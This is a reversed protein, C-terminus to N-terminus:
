TRTLSVATSHAPALADRALGAPVYYRTAASALFRELRDRDLAVVVDADQTSRPEGWFSSAISGVIMYEVGNEDLLDLVDKLVEEQTM